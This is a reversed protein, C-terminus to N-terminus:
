HYVFEWSGLFFSPRTIKRNERRIQNNKGTCDIIQFSKDEFSRNHTLYSWQSLWQSSRKLIRGICHWMVLKRSVRDALQACRSALANVDGDRRAALLLGYQQVRSSLAQITHRLQAIVDDYESATQVHMLLTRCM